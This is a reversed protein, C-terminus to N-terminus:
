AGMEAILEFAEFVSSNGVITGSVAMGKLVDENAPEGMVADYVATASKVWESDNLKMETIEKIIGELAKSM